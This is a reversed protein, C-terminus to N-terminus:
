FDVTLRAMRRSVFGPSVLSRLDCSYVRLVTKPILDSGIDAGAVEIVLVRAPFHLIDTPSLESAFEFVIRRLRPVYQRRLLGSVSELLVLGAPSLSDASPRVWPKFEINAPEDVRRTCLTAQCSTNM